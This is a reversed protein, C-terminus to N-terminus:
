ARCVRVPQTSSKRSIQRDEILRGNTLNLIRDMSHILKKDDTAIIMGHPYHKIWEILENRQDQQLAQLPEDMIILKPECIICRMLSIIQRHGPSLNAGSSEIKQKLGFGNKTIFDCFKFQSLFDIIEDDDLDNNAIKLNSVITGDFLFPYQMVLNMYKLYSTPEIQNHM